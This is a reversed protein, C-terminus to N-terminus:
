ANLKKVARRLASRVNNKIATRQARYVPYFFPKAPLRGTSRGTKKQVRMKTGFEFWRASIGSGSKSKAYITVSIKSYERGKYKGITVSGSPADGWTYAVEIQSAVAPWQQALFVTMLSVVRAAEKDIQKSISSEIVEPLANFKVRFGADKVM